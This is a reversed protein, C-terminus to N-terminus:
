LNTFTIRALIPKIQDFITLGSFRPSYIEAQMQVQQKIEFLEEKLKQIETTEM